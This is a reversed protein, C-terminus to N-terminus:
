AKKFKVAVFSWSLALLEDLSPVYKIRERGQDLDIVVKKTQRNNYRYTTPM